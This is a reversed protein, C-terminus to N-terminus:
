KDFSLELVRRSRSGPRDEGGPIAIRGDKWLAAGTTVLGLPLQGVAAWTKSAPSYREITRSFGPHIEGPRLAIGAMHGDDGGILLVDGNDDCVAPAAVSAAPPDPLRMWGRPPIFSWAERLYHRGPTGNKSEVLTAGGVIYLTNGCGSAAALIRGPGPLPTENRWGSVPHENADLTLSWLHASALSDKSEQGGFIYIHNGAKAMSFNAAPAPLDPWPTLQYGQNRSELAWVSQSSAAADQGGAFVLTHHLSAAGGYALPRPLHAIERWHTDGLELAQIRDDFIKKGGRDPPATWWSGGAVVLTNRFAGVFQGATPHPLSPLEGVRMMGTSLSLATGLAAIM